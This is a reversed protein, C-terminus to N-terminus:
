TRHSERWRRLRRRRHRTRRRVAATHRSPRRCRGVLPRRCSRRRGRRIGSVASTRSRSRRGARRPLAGRPPAVARVARLHRDSEGPRAQGAARTRRGTATAEDGRRQDRCQTTLYCPSSRCPSPRPLGRGRGTGGSVPNGALMRTLLCSRFSGVFSKIGGM